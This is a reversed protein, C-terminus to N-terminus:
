AVAQAARVLRQAARSDPRSLVKDASGSEVLRGAELVQVIGARGAVQRLDHTVLLVGLGSEASLRALVALVRAASVSDLASTIEDALIFNPAVALARALAVRQREGGSLQHPFRTAYASPLELEELLAAIRAATSPLAFNAAGERLLSAVRRSPHLSRWPDQAVYQVQRHWARPLPKAAQGQITGQMSEASLVGQVTLRNRSDSLATLGALTRVLLSKGAGSAGILATIEGGKLALEAELLPKAAKHRNRWPHLAPALSITLGSAALTPKQGEPSTEQRSAQSSVQRSSQKHTEVTPEVAQAARVVAQVGLHASGSLTALSDQGVVSGQELFLARPAHAAGRAVGFDHTVLVLALGEERVARRLVALLDTVTALDIAASPEDALLVKPKAALAAAVALRAREGGSLQHPFAHALDADLSLEECYNQFRSLQADPPVQATGRLLQAQIRHYPSFAADPDQALWRLNPHKPRAAVGEVQVTGSTQRVGAPLFGACARLLLSKGAGSRGLVVLVEGAELRLSVDSLLPKRGASLSLGEVFLRPASLGTM